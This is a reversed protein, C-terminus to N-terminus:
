KLLDLPRKMKIYVEKYCLYTYFIAMFPAAFLLLWTSGIPMTIVAILTVWHYTYRAGPRYTFTHTLAHVLMSIIQWGGIIFYSVLITESLIEGKYEIINIVTFAAILGASICLDVIKFRKM